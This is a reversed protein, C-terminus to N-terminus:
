GQTGIVKRENGSVILSKGPRQDDENSLPVEVIEDAVDAGQGASYDITTAAAQAPAADAGPVTTYLDRWPGLYKSRVTALDPTGVDTDPRLSDHSLTEESTRKVKRHTGLHGGVVKEMDADSLKSM